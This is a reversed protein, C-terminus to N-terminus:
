HGHDTYLRNCTAKFELIDPKASGLDFSLTPLNGVQVILRNGAALEDLLDLPCLVNTTGTGTFGHREDTWDVIGVSQWQRMPNKDVRIRVREAAIEQRRPPKRVASAQVRFYPTDDLQTGAHHCNWTLWEREATKEGTFLWLTADVSEDTFEDRELTLASLDSGGVAIDQGLAAVAMSALAPTLRKPNRKGYAPAPEEPLLGSSEQLEPSDLRPSGGDTFNSATELPRASPSPLPMAPNPSRHSMRRPHRHPAPSVARKRTAPSLGQKRLPRRTQAAPCVGQKRSPRPTTPWQRRRRVGPRTKPRPSPTARSPPAPKSRQPSPSSGGPIDGAESVTAPDAAPDNAAAESANSERLMANLRDLNGQFRRDGPALRVAQELAVAAGPLDGDLMLTLGIGNHGWAVAARPASEAPEALRAFSERAAELEGAALAARGHALLAAHRDNPQEAWELVSLYWQAAARTEGAHLALDGLGMRAEVSRPNVDLLRDYLRRATEVQGSDLATRAMPLIADEMHPAHVRESDPPTHACASALVAVLLIRTLHKM